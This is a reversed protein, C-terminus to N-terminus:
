TMMTGSVSGPSSTVTSIVLARAFTANACTRSSSSRTQRIKRALRPTRPRCVRFSHTFRADTDTKQQGSHEVRHTTLYNNILVTHSYGICRRVIAGRTTAQRSTSAPHLETILPPLAVVGAVPAVAAAVSVAAVVFVGAMVSVWVALAVGVGESVALGVGVDIGVEVGVGVAVGVGVSVGVDVGVAVGVGVSVGVAVDLGSDDADEGISLPVTRVAVTTRTMSPSVTSTRKLFPSVSVTRSMPTSVGSGIMEFM